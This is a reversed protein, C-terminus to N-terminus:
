RILKFINLDKLENRYSFWLLLVCLVLYSLYYWGSAVPWLWLSGIIITMFLISPGVMLKFANFQMAYDNRLFYWMLYIEILFSLATAMIIGYLGWAQIFVIMLVIKIANMAVSVWTLSKMKKLAGYPMIFYSRLARIIFTAGILPLYPLSAAYQSDTIFWDIAFPVLVLDVCVLLMVVSIIGYFYRNIIPTTHKRDSQEHIKKIVQPNVSANLGNLIFDVPALCKVAFDYIGVSAMAGFPLFAMIIFRDFYNMMWQLLQYGFTYANFSLSTFAQPSKFHFGHHNIVRSMVWIAMMGNALLRGGMPGVLTNPYYHLGIITAAGIILFSVVNSWFFPEPKEQIQLVNGYVKFVAQFIGILVSILGFPFFSISLDPVLTFILQGTLSLIITVLAGLFLIFMFASAIFVDLKVKDHKFEHYYVYLSTSFSYSTIIQILMSFALCIAMAGYVDTPLYAIYFPLLVVASAVPLAGALTYALSSKIFRKSVLAALERIRLL